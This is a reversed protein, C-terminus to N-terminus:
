VVVRARRIRRHEARMIADIQCVTDDLRADENVVVYDCEGARKMEEHATQLRRAIVDEDDSKRNRLRQELEEFSPPALFIRVSGPVLRAVTAAGQVDIRMVVDKGAALAERVPGRPIGYGHGYVTAHELFEGADLMRRYEDQSVFYYDVGHTEGARQPRTTATITVHCPSGIEKLRGIVADKGVGSPGTLVVLLPGNAAAPDLALDSSV